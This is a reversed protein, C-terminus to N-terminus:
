GGAPEGIGHRDFLAAFAARCAGMLRDQDRLRALRDARQEPPLAELEVAMAHLRPELDLPLANMLPYWSALPRNKGPQRAAEEHRMRAMVREVEDRGQDRCVGALRGVQAATLRRDTGFRLIAVQDEGGLATLPELMAQPQGRGLMQAESCLRNLRLLRYYTRRTLGTLAMIRERVVAQGDGGPPDALGSDDDDAGLLATAAPAAALTGVRAAEDGVLLALKLLARAKEIPTLDQRQLNVVLSAASEEVAGTPAMQQAPVATLGAILAALCRRHGDRVVIREGRAVVQIPQQVGLTAISRALGEIERLIGEHFPDAAARERLLALLAAPQARGEAILSALAEEPVIARPQDELWIADLRVERVPRLEGDRKMASSSRVTIPTLLGKQGRRVPARADAVM